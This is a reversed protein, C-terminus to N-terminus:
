KWIEFKSLKLLLQKPHLLTFGSIDKHLHSLAKWTVSLVNFFFFFLNIPLAAIASLKLM